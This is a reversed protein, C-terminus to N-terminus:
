NKHAPLGAPLFSSLSGQGRGDDWHEYGHMYLWKFSKQRLHYGIAPLATRIKHMAIEAVHECSFKVNNTAAWAMFAPLSDQSLVADRRANYAAIGSPANM